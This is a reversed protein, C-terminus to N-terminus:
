VFLKKLREHFIRDKFLCVEVVYIACKLSFNVFKPSITKLNIVQFEPM